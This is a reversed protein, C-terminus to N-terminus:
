VTVSLTEGKDYVRIIDYADNFSALSSQTVDDTGLQEGFYIVENMARIVTKVKGTEKSRALTLVCHRLGEQKTDRVMPMEIQM